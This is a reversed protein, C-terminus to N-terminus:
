SRKSVAKCAIRGIAGKHGRLTHVLKVGQPLNKRVEEDVQRSQEASGESMRMSGTRAQWEDVRRTRKLQRHLTWKITIFSRMERGKRVSFWSSQLGLPSGKLICGGAGGGEADHDERAGHRARRGRAARRERECMGTRVSGAGAM